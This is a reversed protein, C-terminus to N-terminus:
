RYLSVSRVSIDAHFARGVALIGVRRLKRPDFPVSTRYPEFGSFPIKVLRWDPQTTLVTRYSQWPRTLETTRLRLEYDQGNGKLELAIGTWESVDFAAGDQTMNFSMQIFGGNNELSVDGTLRHEAVGGENTSLIRGQSIGGMVGDAVYEWTPNLKMTTQAGGPIAKTALLLILIIGFVYRQM